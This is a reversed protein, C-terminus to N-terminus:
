VANWRPEDAAARCVRDPLGNRVASEVYFTPELLDADSGILGEERAAEAVATGPLVRTGVRLTAFQPRVERLFDLKANVTLESEGPTGFALNLAFPLESDRCLGAIRRLGELHDELGARGGGEPERAAVLALSCGSRRMLLTLEEDCEGTRLYSNWRLPLGSAVLGGCLEKAHDLPINFGSDIFFLKRIGSRAHLASVEDVVEEVDRIRWDEGGYGGRGDATPYYYQALKTVVGVGFGAHDYRRLDLLDLRPPRRFDSTVELPQAVVEAGDWYVLGPVDAYDRGEDLRTVLETFSEVGDGAIGMDAELYRLCEAPLISFAPGGCIVKADSLSRVCAVIDKVGPLHSVPNLYSQNDLNRISLGVVHPGFQAVTERVDSLADSSFMLDLVELDHRTEDVHAALYALGIPLPRVVMRDMYREAQNTAILLIKM